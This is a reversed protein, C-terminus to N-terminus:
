TRIPWWSILLEIIRFQYSSYINRRDSWYEASRLFSGVTFCIPDQHQPTSSYLLNYVEFEVEVVYKLFEEAFTDDAVNVINNVRRVKAVRVCASGCAPVLRM